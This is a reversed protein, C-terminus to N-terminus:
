LIAIYQIKQNGSHTYYGKFTFGNATLVIYGYISGDNNAWNVGIHTGSWATYVSPNSADFFITTNTSGSYAYVLMIKSPKFGLSVTYNTNQTSTFTGSVGESLPKTGTKLEKNGAYFTKGLTVDSQVATALTLKSNSLGGGGNFNITNNTDDLIFTYWANSALEISTEGNQRVNYSKGNVVFRDKVGASTAKFKGNEGTGTLNNESQIYDFIGNDAKDVCGNNDKDYVVKTMDSAGIDVVRQAIAEDTQSKTYINDNVHAVLINHKKAILEPLKDFINKNEQIDGYFHDGASKVNNQDIEEATVLYKTM